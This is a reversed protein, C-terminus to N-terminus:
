KIDKTVTIGAAAFHEVTDLFEQEQYAELEAATHPLDCGDAALKAMQPDFPMRDFNVLKNGRRQFMLGNRPVGWIGGEALIAFQRRCWAVHAPNLKAM